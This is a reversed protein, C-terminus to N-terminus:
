PSKFALCPNVPLNLLPFYFFSIPGPISPEALNLGAGGLSRPLRRNLRGHLAGGAQQCHMRRPLMCVSSPSGVADVATGTVVITAHGHKEAVSFLPSVTARRRISPAPHLARRSASCPRPPGPRRGRGRPRVRGTVPVVSAHGRPPTAGPPRLRRVRRRRVHPSPAFHLAARPRLLYTSSPAALRPQAPATPDGAHL